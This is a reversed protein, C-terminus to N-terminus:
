TKSCAIQLVEKASQALTASIGQQRPIKFVMGSRGMTAQERALRTERNPQSSAAGFAFIAGSGLEETVEVVVGFGIKAVDSIGGPSTFM